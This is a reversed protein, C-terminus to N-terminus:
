KDARIIQKVRYVLGLAQATAGNRSYNHGGMNWAAIVDQFTNFRKELSKIYGAAAITACEIDDPSDCGFHKSTSPLMQWFGVAGAKSRAKQKCRSEAVMLYYYQKSVGNNALITEVQNRYPKCSELWSSYDRGFCVKCEFLVIIFSLILVFIAIYKNM